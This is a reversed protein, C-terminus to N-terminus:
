CRTKSASITSSTRRRWSRCMRRRWARHTIANLANPDANALDFRGPDVYPLSSVEVGGEELYPAAERVRSEM